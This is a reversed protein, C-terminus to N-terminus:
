HDLASRIESTFNKLLQVRTQPSSEELIQVLKSGIVVADAHQSLTRASHADRIGFGIALPTETKARIASTVQSVETANVHSAGTVGKLSVYYIYGSSVKAVYSIREPSSTPALLFIPSLDASKLIDTFELCEEPPYDVVLVGDVGVNKAVSVFKEIGMHEIPNAYGMLVIPTSQNTQRFEQVMELCQRLNMGKELARESARQIVPGDAMPDSFPVGLEILDAGAEVLAHMISVTESIDPDGATVFPILGKKQNAKLTAFVRDIRNM